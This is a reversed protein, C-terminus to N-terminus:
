KAALLIRSRIGAVICKAFMEDHEADVGSCAVVIGRDIASGFYPTIGLNLGPYLKQIISTPMAHEVTLDFKSLAIEQYPYEWNESTKFSFEYIVNGYIDGVVIHLHKRKVQGSEMMPIIIGDQVLKASDAAIQESFLPGNLIETM